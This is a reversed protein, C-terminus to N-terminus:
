RKVGYKETLVSIDLMKGWKLDYIDPNFPMMGASPTFTLEAFYYRNNALFFDVRVFPFDKSLNEAMDLMEPFFTPLTVQPIDVYDDRKLPMKSGNLYFFGIQAQRDHILDSSVYIFKPKGNFCFFKYDIINDGLFKECIIRHPKIKSYHLEINFAGFDEKLWQNLQHVTKKRNIKIKNQVVINYACGHNCKLVFQEPLCDFDIDEARNWVGLMPILYEEGITQKIFDRVAYKDVYTTYEPRRDYLKLWQLKENLTVPNDLDLERGFVAKFRRLLYERDPMDNYKGRASDILFRYDSNTLYKVGALLYKQPSRM